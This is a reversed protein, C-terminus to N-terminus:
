LGEGEEGEGEGRGCTGPGGRGMDTDSGFWLFAGLHEKIPGLFHEMGLPGVPLAGAELGRQRDLPGDDFIGHIAACHHHGIVPDGVAALVARGIQHRDLFESIEAQVDLEPDCFEMSVAAHVQLVTVLDLHEIAVLGRVAHSRHNIFRGGGVVGVIAGSLPVSVIDVESCSAELLALEDLLREDGHIEVTLEDVGVNGDLLDPTPSVGSDIAAILTALSDCIGGAPELKLVFAM